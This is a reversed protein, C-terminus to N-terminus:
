PCILLIFVHITESFQSGWWSNTYTIKEADVAIASIMSDTIEATSESVM